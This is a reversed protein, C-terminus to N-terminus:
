IYVNSIYWGEKPRFFFRTGYTTEKVPIVYKKTDATSLTISGVKIDSTIDTGEPLMFAEGDYTESIELGEANVIYGTFEVTEYQKAAGEIRLVNTSETITFAIREGNIEVPNGNLKASTYTYEEDELNVWVLSGTMISATNNEVQVFAGLTQNRVNHICGEMGEGYEFSLTSFTPDNEFVRIKLEDGNKIDINEYYNQYANKQVPEGNLTISYVNINNSSVNVTLKGDIAPNFSYAHSGEKLELQYGSTPFQATLYEAGNEIDITFSDNRELKEVTVKYTKGTASSNITCSYCGSYASYDFKKEGDTSVVSTIHYGEAAYLYVYGFSTDTSYTYSTQDGLDVFDGSLSGTKLKVTGPVDWEFTATVASATLSTLVLMMLFLGLSYIKKM